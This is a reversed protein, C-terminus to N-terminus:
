TDGDRLMDPVMSIIAQDRDFATMAALERRGEKLVVRWDGNIEEVTLKYVKKQM